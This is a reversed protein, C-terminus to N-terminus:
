CRVTAHNLVKATTTAPRVFEIKDDHRCATEESFQKADVVAFTSVMRSDNASSCGGLSNVFAARVDPFPDAGNLKSESKAFADEIRWGPHPSGDVRIEV